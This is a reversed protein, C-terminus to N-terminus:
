RRMMRFAFNVGYGQKLALTIWLLCLDELMRARKLPGADVPDFGLDSALGAAIRKAGDDDGCYFMTAPQGQYDPNAMNPYGTTNFIKVVHAKTLGAVREGGSTGQPVDLGSLDPLLPNTADLVIKGTLDGTSRLADAVAGWPVSLVIVDSSQAAEMVGAVRAASASDSKKPDRVGFTVEHGRKAWGTGLTSGVNGAGIIAIKM